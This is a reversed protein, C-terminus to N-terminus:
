FTKTLGVDTALRRDGWMEVIKTTLKIGLGGGLQHKVGGGAAYTFKPVNVSCGLEGLVYVSDRKGLRLITSSLGTALTHSKNLTYTYSGYISFTKSIPRALSTSLRLRSRSEGIALTATNQASLSCCLFAAISWRM